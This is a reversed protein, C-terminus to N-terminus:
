GSPAVDLRAVVGDLNASPSPYRAMVLPDHGPIIHQPSSALAQMKRFGALMDAVSYVIPFPSPKEMNEYFHAADVALVVWGRKTFVNVCQIGMTHGGILHLVVGPALEEDGDHFGVRGQYLSQILSAVHDPSYPFRFTAECMHRGTAYRM